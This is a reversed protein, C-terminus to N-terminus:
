DKQCIAFGQLSQSGVCKQGAPCENSSGPECVRVAVTNPVVAV